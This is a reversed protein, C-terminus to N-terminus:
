YYDVIFLSALIHGVFSSPPTVRLLWYLEIDVLSSFFFLELFYSFNIFERRYYLIIHAIATFHNSLWVGDLFGDSM